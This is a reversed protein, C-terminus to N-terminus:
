KLYKAVAENHEELTKSFITKGNGNASLYYWYDSEKPYIAALISDIGPNSIPGKPLGVYKYTNYPSDIKTDKIYVSHDNKGTIYNITSDVQLPVGNKLRKWLIGSIIKKDDMIKVEKEIISAMTIIEFISKNQLSIEKRLDPTLKKNFNTLIIRLLEEPNKEPLFEYSDPFIYGELNSNKLKSVQKPPDNLFSFDESFNNKTADIFDQQSYLKKNELYQAIDKIDWGEIITIKYKVVDGSVFKSVIKAVSMSPSLDYKGSQLKSYQGSVFVYFKFFLRSKIIGRKELEDAIDGGGAGKQVIYIVTSSSSLSKPIYIEFIFVVVAIFFVIKPINKPNM